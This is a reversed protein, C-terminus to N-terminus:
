IKKIERKVRKIPESGSQPTYIFSKQRSAITRESISQDIVYIEIPDTVIEDTKGSFIASGITLAGAKIPMIIYSYSKKQTVKGNMMKIQSSTNPGSVIRFGKFDPESFMGDLNDLMFEVKVVEDLYLSDKDIHITLSEKQSKAILPLFFLLVFILFRM